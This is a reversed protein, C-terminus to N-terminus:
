GIKLGLAFGAVTSIGKSFQFNSLRDKLFIVFEKFKSFLNTVTNELSAENISMMGKNELVFIAIIYLGLLLLLLKFSKKLTYGVALGILFGTGMDLYPILTEQQTTTEEM